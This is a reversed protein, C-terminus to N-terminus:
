RRLYSYDLKKHCSRCLKKWDSIIRKYEGSINAWDYTKCEGTCAEEECRDARGYHNKIWNHIGSYNKIRKDVSDSGKWGFHNKGSKSLSMKKRSEPTYRKGAQAISLKLRHEASLIRRKSLGNM